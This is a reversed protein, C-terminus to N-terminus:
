QPLESRGGNHVLPASSDVNRGLPASSDTSSAAHGRQWPPSLTGKILQLISKLVHVGRVTDAQAAPHAFPLPPNDSSAGAADPPTPSATAPSPRRTVDNPFRALGSTVSAPTARGTSRSEPAQSAKPSSTDSGDGIPPPLAAFLLQPRPISSTGSSSPPLTPPPAARGYFLRQASTTHVVRGRLRHQKAPKAERSACTAYLLGRITCM